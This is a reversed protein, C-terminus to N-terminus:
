KWPKVEQGALDRSGHIVAVIYISEAKVQYIIRYRQLILERIDKRGEAEPVCRGIEPHEELKDVAEILKDAFLEAYYPVDRAIYDYIDDIDAEAVESWQIKM